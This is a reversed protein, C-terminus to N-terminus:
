KNFKFRKRCSSEPYDLVHYHILVDYITIYISIIIVYSRTCILLLCYLLYKMFKMNSSEHIYNFNIEVDLDSESMANNILLGYSNLFCFSINSGSIVLVDFCLSALAVCSFHFL